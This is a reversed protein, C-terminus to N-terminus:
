EGSSSKDAAKDTTAAATAAGATAASTAASDTASPRIGTGAALSSEQVKRYLPKSPM